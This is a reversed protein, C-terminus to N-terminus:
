APVLQPAIRFGDEDVWVISSRNNVEAVIQEAMEDDIVGVGDGRHIVRLRAQAPFKTAILGPHGCIITVDFPTIVEDSATSERDRGYAALLYWAALATYLFVAFPVLLSSSDDDGMIRRLLIFLTTILAIAAALGFVVGLGLNYLRRPWAVAEEGPDGREHRRSFALWLWLGVVLGVTAGVVDNTGGGVLLSRDFAIVTLSIAALVAVVLGIAAMGYEYSRLQSTREPGLLRRHFIWVGLATVFAALLEPLPEFHDVAAGTDGLVYQLALVIIASATGVAAALTVIDVVVIWVL